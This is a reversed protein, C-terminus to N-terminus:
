PSNQWVSNKIKIYDLKDHKGKNNRAKNIHKSSWALEFILVFKGTAKKKKFLEEKLHSAM